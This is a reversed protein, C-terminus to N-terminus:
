TVIFVLVSVVENDWVCENMQLPSLLRDMSTVAASLPQGYVERGWMYLSTLWYGLKWVHHVGFRHAGPGNVRWYFCLINENTGDIKSQCKTQVVCYSTRTVILIQLRLSTTQGLNYLFDTTQMINVKYNDDLIDKILNVWRSQKLYFYNAYLLSIFKM